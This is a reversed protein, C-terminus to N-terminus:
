LFHESDGHGSSLQEVSLPLPSRLDLEITVETPQRLFQRSVEVLEHRLIHGRM